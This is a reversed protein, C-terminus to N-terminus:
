KQHVQARVPSYSALLCSRCGLQTKGTTEKISTKLSLRRLPLSRALRSRPTAKAAAPPQSDAPSPSTLAPNPQPQTQNPSPSSPTEHPQVWCGPSLSSSGPQSPLPAAAPQPFCAIPVPPFRCLLPSSPYQALASLLDDSRTAWAAKELCSILSRFHQM